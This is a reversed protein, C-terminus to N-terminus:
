DIGVFVVDRCRSVGVVCVFVLVVVVGVVCCSYTLENSWVDVDVSTRCCLCVLILFM